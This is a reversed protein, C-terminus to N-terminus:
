AGALTSSHRVNLGGYYSPDNFKDNFIREWRANDVCVPCQGCQCRGRRRMHAVHAQVKVPIRAAAAELRWSDMEVLFPWLPLASVATGDARADSPALKVTVHFDSHFQTPQDGADGTLSSV